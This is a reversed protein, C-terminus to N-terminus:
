EPRHQQARHRSHRDTPACPVFVRRVHRPLCIHGRTGCVAMVALLGSRWRSGPVDDYYHDAGYAGGIAVAQIDANHHDDSATPLFIPAQRSPLAPPRDDRDPSAPQLHDRSQIKDGDPMGESPAASRPEPAARARRRKPMFRLSRRKRRPWRRRSIPAAQGISPRRGNSEGYSAKDEVNGTLGGFLRHSIGRAPPDRSGQCAGPGPKAGQTKKTSSM